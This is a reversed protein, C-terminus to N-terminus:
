PGLCELHLLLWWMPVCLPIRTSSLWVKCKSCYNKLKSYWVLNIAKDLAHIVVSYSIRCEYWYKHWNEVIQNLSVTMIISKIYKSYVNCHRSWCVVVVHVYENGGHITELNSKGDFNGCRIGYGWQYSCQRLKTTTGIGKVTATEKIIIIIIITQCSVFGPKWCLGCCQWKSQQHLSRMCFWPQSALLTELPM